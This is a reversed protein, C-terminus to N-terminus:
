GEIEAKIGSEIAKSIRSSSDFDRQANSVAPRAFGGRWLGMNGSELLKLFGGDGGSVGYGPLVSPSPSATSTVVLTNKGEMDSKVAGELVHRRQYTTREGGSTVWGNPKPSYVNYIDSKIHEKFIQEAVPAVYEKLIVPVKNEIAAILSAEDEFFMDM